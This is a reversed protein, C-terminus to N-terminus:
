SRVNAYVGAVFAIVPGRLVYVVDVAVLAVQSVLESVKGRKEHHDDSLWVNVFQEVVESTTLQMGDATGSSVLQKLDL